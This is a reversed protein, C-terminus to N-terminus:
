KLLFQAMYCVFRATLFASNPIALWHKANIASGHHEIKFAFFYAIIQIHISVKYKYDGNISALIYNLVVCLFEKSIKSYLFFFHIFLLEM